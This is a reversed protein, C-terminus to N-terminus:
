VTPFKKDSKEKREKKGGREREREEEGNESLLLKSSSSSSFSEAFLSPNEGRSRSVEQSLYKIQPYFSCSERGGEGGRLTELILFM